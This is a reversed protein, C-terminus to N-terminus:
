VYAEEQQSTPASTSPIEAPIKMAKGKPHGVGELM